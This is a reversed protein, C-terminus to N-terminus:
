GRDVVVGASELLHLMLLVDEEVGVVKEDVVVGAEVDGLEARVLGVRELELPDSDAM